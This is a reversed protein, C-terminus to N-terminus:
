SVRDGADVLGALERRAQVALLSLRAMDERLAYKAARERDEPSMTGTPDVRELYKAWRARRAPATRAILGDGDLQKLQTNVAIEAALRRIEPDTSAM